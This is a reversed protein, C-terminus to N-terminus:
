VKYTIRRPMYARRKAVADAQKEGLPTLSDPQYVPDGHRVYFLLM